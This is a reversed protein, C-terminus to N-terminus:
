FAGTRRLIAPITRAMIRLDLPLSWSEVYGIDLQVAEAWGLESRGGVQWLGTLGPKVLLRRREVRTYEEVERPLPPRPGVLSMTGNVVNALQPLEDLSLRRLVKGVRTIRPDDRLKFLPGESENLHRLEALTAEANIHMTRFKTMTFLTGNQGVRVQRFLVPGPSELRIALAIAALLPWVLLMGIGAGARDVLQKAFQGAGGPGPRPVALVPVGAVSVFPASTAVDVVGPSFMIQLGHWECARSVGRWVATDIGSGPVLLVADALAEEAAAVTTEYDSESLACIPLGLGHVLEVQDAPVVVAVPEIAQTARHLREVMEIVPGAEGVVLIRQTCRGARRQAHIMIRTGFRVLSALGTTALIAAIATTRQLTVGAVDLVSVAALLVLGALLVARLDHAGASLVHPRYAGTLAGVAVWALPLGAIAWSLQGSALVLALVALGAMADGTLLALRYTHIWRQPGPGEARRLPHGSAAQVEDTAASSSRSSRRSARVITTVTM